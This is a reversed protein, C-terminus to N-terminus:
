DEVKIMYSIQAIKGRTAANDPQVTSDGVKRLDLSHATNIHRPLRGILSKVLTIKLTKNDM